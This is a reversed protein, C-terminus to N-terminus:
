PRNETIPSQLAKEYLVILIIRLAEMSLTKGPRDPILVTEIPQALEFVKQFERPQQPSWDFYFSVNLPVNTFPPLFFSYSSRPAKGLFEELQNKEIQTYNELPPNAVSFTEPFALVHAQQKALTHQHNMFNTNELVAMLFARLNENIQFSDPKLRILQSKSREQAQEQFKQVIDYLDLFNTLLGSEEDPKNLTEQFRPNSNFTTVTEQYLPDYLKKLTQFLPNISAPLRATIESNLRNALEQSVETTNATVYSKQALVLLLRKLSSIAQTREAEEGSNLRLLSAKFEKIASEQNTAQSLKSTNLRKLYNLPTAPQSPSNKTAQVLEQFFDKPGANKSWDLLTQWERLINIDLKDPHLAYFMLRFILEMKEEETQKQFKSRIEAAQTKSPTLCIKAGPIRDTIETAKKILESPSGFLPSSTSPPMPQWDKLFLKLEQYNKLLVLNHSRKLNTQTINVASSERLRAIRRDILGILDTLHKPEEFSFSGPKLQVGYPLYARVLFENYYPDENQNTKLGFNILFDEYPKMFLEIGSIRKRDFSYKEGAIDVLRPLDPYPDTSSQPGKAAIRIQEPTARLYTNYAIAAAAATAADDTAAAAADAATTNFNSITSSSNNNASAM